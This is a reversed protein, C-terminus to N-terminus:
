FSTQDSEFSKKGICLQGNPETNRFLTEVNPIALKREPANKVPFGSDPLPILLTLFIVGAWGNFTPWCAPKSEKKKSLADSLERGKQKSLAEGDM